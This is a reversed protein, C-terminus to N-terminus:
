EVKSFEQSQVGDLYLGQFRSWIETLDKREKQVAIEEKKKAILETIQQTHTTTKEDTYRLLLQNLLYIELHALNGSNDVADLTDMHDNRGKKYIENPQFIIDKYGSGKLVRKMVMRGVRGSGDLFPHVREFVYYSWAANHIANELKEGPSTPEVKLRSDLDSTFLQMVPRVDTGAVYFNNSKGQNNTTVDTNRYDGPALPILGKKSYEGVGKMLERHLTPIVQSSPYEPAHIWSRVIKQCTYHNAIETQTHHQLEGIATQESM